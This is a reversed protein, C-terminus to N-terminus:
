GRYDNRKSEFAAETERFRPNQPSVGSFDPDGMLFYM